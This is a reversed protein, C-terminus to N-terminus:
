LDRVNGRYLRGYRFLCLAYSVAGVVTCAAVFLPLATLPDFLLALLLSVGVGVGAWAPSRDLYGRPWWLNAAMGMGMLLFLVSCVVTALIGVGITTGQFAGVTLFFGVAVPCFALLSVLTPVIVKSLFYAGPRVGGLIVNVLTGDRKDESLSVAYYELFGMMGAISMITLRAYENGFVHATLGLPAVFALAVLWVVGFLLWLLSSTRTRVLCLDKWVLAQIARRM